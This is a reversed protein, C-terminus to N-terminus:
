AAAQLSLYENHADQPTRYGPHRTLGSGIAGSRLTGLSTNAPEKRTPCVTRHVREVKLPTNFSEALAKDFCIGTRDVSQRIALRELAAAFEGSTYNKSEVPRRLM